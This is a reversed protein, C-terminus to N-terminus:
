NARYVAFDANAFVSAGAPQSANTSVVIYDADFSRAVQALQDPTLQAYRKEIAQFTPAEEVLVLACLRHYWAVLLDPRLPPSKTDVVVARRSLLRFRGLDPPIVFLADTASHDRAWTELALESPSGVPEIRVGAGRPSFWLAVVIAIVAVGARLYRALLVCAALLVMTPVGFHWQRCTMLLACIALIEFGIRRRAPSMIAAGVLIQAALQGFPAIRSVRLQVLAHWPTSNAILAAGAVIAFAVLSFRWLARTERATDDISGLAAFAALEWALLEPIAWVQRHPAYHVPAHFTILLNVAEHSPGAAGVLQPLFFALVVLQPVLLLALERLSVRRIAIAALPFLGIGLVLFNAHFVGALAAAIGCALWRRRVLAAIAFMWGITALSSPQFYNGLIYSGGMSLGMTITMFGAVVLATRAGPSVATTIRYLGAYTAVTVIVHVVLIAISGAPDIVYVWRVVWGFVPLYPPTGVFWDRHYLEPMARHLPDLLYTAQNLAGYAQTYALTLAVAVVILTITKM